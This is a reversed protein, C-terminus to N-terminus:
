VFQNKFYGHNTKYCFENLYCQLYEDKIHKYTDHLNWKSNSIITDVRPLVM